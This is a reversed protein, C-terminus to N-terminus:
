TPQDILSRLPPAEAGGSKSRAATGNEGGGQVSDAHQKPKRSSERKRIAANAFIKGESAAANPRRQSLASSKAM